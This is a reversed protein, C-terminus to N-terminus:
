FYFRVQRIQISCHLGELTFKSCKITFKSSKTKTDFTFMFSNLIANKTKTVITNWVKSSLTAIAQTAAAATPQCSVHYSFTVQGFEPAIETKVTAFYSLEATKPDKKNEEDTAFAALNFVWSSLALLMIKNKM